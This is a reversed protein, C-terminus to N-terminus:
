VGGYKKAKKEKARKLNYEKCGEINGPAVYQCNKCGSGDEAVQMRSYPCAITGQKM